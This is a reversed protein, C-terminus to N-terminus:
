CGSASRQRGAPQSPLTGRQRETAIALNPAIERLPRMVFEREYARPHPLTLAPTCMRTAGHLILDIDIMRPENRVGRRARGLRTEIALVAALLSQPALLTTGILVLNLFPPSGAPADVAVTEHVTSVRV